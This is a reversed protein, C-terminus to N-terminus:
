GASGGWWQLHSVYVYVHVHVHVYLADELGRLRGVVASPAASRRALMPTGPLLGASLLGRLHCYLTHSWVRGCGAVGQWESGNVAM